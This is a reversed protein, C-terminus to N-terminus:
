RPVDAIGFMVPTRLIVEKFRTAEAPAAEVALRNQEIIEEVEHQLLDLASVHAPHRVAM